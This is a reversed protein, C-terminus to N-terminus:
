LAAATRYSEIASGKPAGVMSSSLPSSRTLSVRLRHSTAVVSTRRSCLGCITSDHGVTARDSDCCWSRREGHPGAVRVINCFDCVETRVMQQRLREAIRSRCSRVDVAGRASGHLGFEHTISRFQQSPATYMVRTIDPVDPAASVYESPRVHRSCEDVPDPPRGHLQDEERQRLDVFQTSRASARVLHERPREGRLLTDHLAVQRQHIEHLFRALSGDPRAALLGRHISHQQNLPIFPDNSGSPAPRLSVEVGTALLHQRVEQVALGFSPSYRSELSPTLSHPQEIAACLVSVFEYPISRRDM